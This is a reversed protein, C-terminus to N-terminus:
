KHATTIMCDEIKKIRAELGNTESRLKKNDGNIREVEMNLRNNEVMLAKIAELLLPTMKGYEISLYGDEGESVLEPIIEKVEQASFGV